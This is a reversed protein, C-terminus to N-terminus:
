LQWGLGVGFNLAQDSLEGVKDKTDGASNYVAIDRSAWNTRADIYLGSVIVVGINADVDTRYLASGNALSIGGGLTGFLREGFDGGFEAGLDLSQVTLQEWNLTIQGATAGQRYVIFDDMSWGARAGVHMRSAGAEIPLRALGTVHLKNVWDPIAEGYGPLTVTYRSSSFGADVGIIDMMPLWARANLGFGASGAPNTVSGGFVIRQPYLPGTSSLPTQEYSYQGFLATAGARLWPNDGDERPEKPAKEKKVKEPKPETQAVADAPQTTTDTPTAAVSQWSSTGAVPIKAFASVSGSPAVASIKVEGAVCVPVTLTTQYNGSGLDQVTSITGASALIEFTQGSVGRGEADMANLKLTVTGGPAVSAPEAVLGMRSVPGAVDATTQAALAAGVMGEREVRVSTIIKSWADQLAANAPDGSPPLADVGSGDPMQVLGFGNTYSGAKAQLHVIGPKRGATYYIQAIGHENTTATAPVSGDGSVLNLSVPVNAVPYGYGDLSIVTLMTSSLGDNPLRTRSPVVVLQRLPNASADAWLTAVVEVPGSGTTEFTAEYDGSGLPKVAGKTKAGTAQFRLVRNAMGVGDSGNVKAFVKFGTTDASLTAPEPTLTISGPRAPLLNVTFADSQTGKPDEVSVQITAQSASNGFPPSYTAVYVGGGEHRAEGMSGASATFNVKAGEDSGGEARAVYARVQVPVSADAPLNQNMPFMRVRQTSPVKLDLPEETRQDGLVSIVKADRVGPPVIIPVQARGTADTQIPGFERDDVKVIVRSNPMGVVPFNAKGVLPLAIVGFTASPDRRDAMTILALHPFLKDPATYLATFRGDGLSTLNAVTGSSTQVVLDGDALAQAAGGSLTFTLTASADQGLVIRDPSSSATLQQGLGPVLPVSWRKNFATKANTKGKISIEVNRPTTVKPTTWEIRYIGPGVEDMKGIEGSSAYAKGVLGVEPKGDTGLAVVHLNVKSVGDGIIDGMPVMELQMESFMADQAAAESPALSLAVLTAPAVAALAVLIRTAAITGRIGMNLEEKM